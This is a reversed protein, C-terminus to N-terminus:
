IGRFKVTSQLKVNRNQIDNLSLLYTHLKNSLENPQLKQNIVRM